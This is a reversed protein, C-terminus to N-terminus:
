LWSHSPSLVAKARELDASKVLLYDTDFTSIAFISIKAEALPTTLSNLIGTLSFDLPGMVQIARWDTEIANPTIPFATATDCVISLEEPSKTISYFAQGKVSSLWDFDTEPHFRYISLPNDLVSLEM